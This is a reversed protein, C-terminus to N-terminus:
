VLSDISSFRHIWFYNEWRQLSIDGANFELLLLSQSRSIAKQLLSKTKPVLFYTSDLFDDEELWILSPSPVSNSISPQYLDEDDDIEYDDNGLDMDVIDANNMNDEYDDISLDMDEQSDDIGIICVHTIVNGIAYGPKQHQLHRRFHPTPILLQYNFQHPQPHSRIIEQLLAIIRIIRLHHEHTEQLHLLRRLTNRLTLTDESGLNDIIEDFLEGRISVEIPPELTHRCHRHPNCRHSAPM